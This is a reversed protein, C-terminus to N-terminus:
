AAAPTPPTSAWKVFEKYGEMAGAKTNFAHGSRAVVLATPGVEKTVQWVWGGKLNPTITYVSFEM